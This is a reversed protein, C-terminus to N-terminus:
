WFIWKCNSNLYNHKDIFGKIQKDLDMNVHQRGKIGNLVSLYNIWLVGSVSCKVPQKQNLVRIQIPKWQLLSFDTEFYLCTVVRYMLICDTVVYNCPLPYSTVYQFFFFPPNLTYLSSSTVINAKRQGANCWLQVLSVCLLGCTGVPSSFMENTLSIYEKSIPANGQMKNHNRNMYSCNYAIIKLAMRFVSEFKM